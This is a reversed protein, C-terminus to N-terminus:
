WNIIHRPSTSVPWIIEAWCLLRHLRVCRICVVPWQRAAVEVILNERKEQKSFMGFFCDLRHNGRARDRLNPVLYDMARDAVLRWMDMCMEPDYLEHSLLLSVRCALLSAMACAAYGFPAVRSGHIASQDGDRKRKKATTNKRVAPSGELRALLVAPDLRFPLERLFRSQNRDERSMTAMVAFWITPSLATLLRDPAMSPQFRGNRGGPNSENIKLLVQFLPLHASSEAHDNVRLCASLRPFKEYFLKHWWLFRDEDMTPADMKKKNNHPPVSFITTKKKVRPSEPDFRGGCFFIEKKM